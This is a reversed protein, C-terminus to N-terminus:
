GARFNGYSGSGRLYDIVSISADGGSELKRMKFRGTREGASSNTVFLRRNRCFEHIEMYFSTCGPLFPMKQTPCITAQGKNEHVDGSREKMKLMKQQEREGARSKTRQRSAHTTGSDGSRCRHLASNRGGLGGGSPRFPQSSLVLATKPVVGWRQKRGATQALSM